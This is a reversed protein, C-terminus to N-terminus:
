IPPNLDWAIGKPIAHAAIGSKLTVTKWKEIMKGKQGNSIKGKKKIKKKIWLNLNSTLKKVELRLGKLSNCYQM